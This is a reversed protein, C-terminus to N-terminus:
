EALPDVQEDVLGDGVLESGEDPDDAGFREDPVAAAIRAAADPGDPGEASIADLREIAHEVAVLDAELGDLVVLEDSM